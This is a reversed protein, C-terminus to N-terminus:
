LYDVNWGDNSANLEADPNYGYSDNETETDLLNEWMMMDFAEYDFVDDIMSSRGDRQNEEPHLYVGDGAQVEMVVGDFYCRRNERMCSGTPSCKVRSQEGDGGCRGWGSWEAHKKKEKCTRSELSCEMNKNCKEREQFGEKCESWESWDKDGKEGCEKEELHCDKGDANCKQRSSFGRVCEGWASWEGPQLAAGCLRQESQCGFINDCKTREQRSKICEGWKSWQSDRCEEVEETCANEMTCKMRSRLGQLCPGWAGWNNSIGRKGQNVECKEEDIECGFDPTCRERVRIQSVPDCTSWMTWEQNVYAEGGCEGEEYECEYNKDCRERFHWGEECHSWEGWEGEFCEWVNCNETETEFKGEQCQGHDSGECTRVRTQQGGGCTLSCASWESWVSWGGVPVPLSRPPHFPFPRLLQSSVVTTCILLSLILMAIQIQFSIFAVTEIPEFCVDVNSSFITNNFSNELYLPISFPVLVQTNIIM